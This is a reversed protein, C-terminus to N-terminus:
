ESPQDLAIRSRLAPILDVELRDALRVLTHVGINYQYKDPISNSGGDRLDVHVRLRDGSREVVADVVYHDGLLDPLERAAGAQTILRAGAIRGLSTEFAKRIEDVVEAAYQDNEDFELSLVIVPLPTNEACDPGLWCPWYALVVVGLAVLAFAALLVRRWAPRKRLGPPPPLSATQDRAPIGSQEVSEAFGAAESGIIEEKLVMTEASPALGYEKLARRCQEYQRLVAPRDGATAHARMMARHAPENTPEIVLIKRAISGIRDPECQEEFAAILDVGTKIAIERLREREVRLIENVAEAQAPVPFTALLDGRYLDLAKLRSDADPRACLTEFLAWDVSERQVNLMILENTARILDPDVPDIARRLALLAMRLSGRATRQDSASLLDALRDRPIMEGPKLALLAFLIRASRGKWQIPVPAEVLLDGGTLMRIFLSDQVRDGKPQARNM